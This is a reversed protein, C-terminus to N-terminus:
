APSLCPHRRVYSAAAPPMHAVDRLFKEDLTVLERAKENESLALPVNRPPEPKAEPTAAPTAPDGPPLPSSTGALVQKVRQFEAGRLSGGTPRTGTLWGHMLTLLNGRTQPCEYAHCTFVKQPNSADVSIERRKAHDGPCGFPCDLRVQSGSGRVDLPVGCKAAAEQLTTQAQLDDVSVYRSEAM